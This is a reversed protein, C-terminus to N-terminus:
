IKELVCINLCFHELHWEGELAQKTVKIKLILFCYLKRRFPYWDMWKWALKVWKNSYTCELDIGGIFIYKIVKEKQKSKM